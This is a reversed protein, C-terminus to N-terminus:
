GGKKPTTTGRKPEPTKLRPDTPVPAAAAPFPLVTKPDDKFLLADQKSAWAKPPNNTGWQNVGQVEAGNPAGPGGKEITALLAIGLEAIQLAPATGRNAPLAKLQKRWLALNYSWRAAAVRWHMIPLTSTAAARGGDSNADRAFVIMMKAQSYAAVDLNLDADIRMQPFGAAAETREQITFPPTVSPDAEMVRALSWAPRFMVERTPKRFVGEKFRSLAAVAERRVFEIVGKEKDDKWTRKQMVYNDLATAIEVLKAIGLTGPFIHKTSDNQDEQELLNRLGQFAYLKEADSVKSNVVAILPDALSPAPIRAGISLMRVANIREIPRNANDLVVKVAEALAKGFEDSYELQEQSPKGETGAGAPLTGGERVTFNELESILYSITDFGTPLKPANSPLPDGNYPPQDLSFVIWQALTRLHERNKPDDKVRISGNRMKFVLPRAQNTNPPKPIDAAVLTGTFYLGLGVAVFRSPFTM